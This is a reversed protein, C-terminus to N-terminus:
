APDLSIWEGFDCAGSGGISRRRRSDCTDFCVTSGGDRAEHFVHLRYDGAPVNEIRFTGDKKTTSYYPTDLVIIIASMTPHINCFVRVVGARTFRVSQSSGPEYLGLDFPKGNYNSFASHFIPDFNPFDVRTGAEIALM